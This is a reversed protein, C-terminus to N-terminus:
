SDRREAEGTSTAPAAYGLGMSGRLAAATRSRVGLKALVHRVHVKVTSESIYLRKAIEKNTLGQALLAQIELERATLRHGVGAGHSEGAGAIAVVRKDGAKTMIAIAEKRSGPDGLLELALQPVGRYACVLADLNGAHMAAALAAHSYSRSDASGTTLAIVARTCAAVVATEVARTAVEVSGLRAAAVETEGLCAEAMARCASIEVALGATVGAPTGSLVELARGAEGKAVLTRALIARCNWAGHGDRYREARDVGSRLVEEARDFERMGAHCMGLISEGYPIVFDLRHIAADALLRTAFDMAIEYDAALALAHGLVNLFSTRSLPDPVNEVVESVALGLPVSRVAGFRMELILRKGVIQVQRAPDTSTSAELDELLAISEELELDVACSLEGLRALELEADSRAISVAQRFLALAREDQSALHAARGALCLARAALSPDEQLSMSAARCALSEARFYAGERLSLEAAAVDVIPTAIGLDQALDLWQRLTASRGKNLADDFGARIVDEVVSALGLEVGLGFAEDFLGRDLLAAGVERAASERVALPSGRLKKRFFERLLPHFELRGKATEALIGRHLGVALVRDADGGIVESAVLRDISPALALRCFDAQVQADLDQYLEEAFFDYLATPMDEPLPEDSAAALGIV